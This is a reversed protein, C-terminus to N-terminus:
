RLSAQLYLRHIHAFHQHTLQRTTTARQKTAKSTQAGTRKGSTINVLPLALFWAIGLIYLLVCSPILPLAMTLAVILRRTRHHALVSFDFLSWVRYFM